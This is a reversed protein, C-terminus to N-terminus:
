STAEQYPGYKEVVQPKNLWERIQEILAIVADLNPKEQNLMDEALSKADKHLYSVKSLMELEKLNAGIEEEEPTKSPETNFPPDEEEPAELQESEKGNM